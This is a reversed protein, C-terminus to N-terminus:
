NSPLGGIKLKHFRYGMKSLHRLSAKNSTEIYGSGLGTLGVRDDYDEGTQASRGELVNELIDGIRDRILKNLTIDLVGKRFIFQHL